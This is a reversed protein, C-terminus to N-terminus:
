PQVPSFFAKTAVESLKSFAGTYYAIILVISILLIILTGIVYWELAKKSLWLKRFSLVKPKETKSKIM